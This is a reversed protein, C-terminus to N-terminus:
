EPQTSSPNEEADRDASEIVTTSSEGKGWSLKCHNLDWSPDGPTVADTQYSTDTDESWDCLPEQKDYDRKDAMPQDNQTPM